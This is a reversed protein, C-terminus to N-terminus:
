SSNRDPRSVEDVRALANNRAQDLSKTETVIDAVICPAEPPFSGRTITDEDAQAPVLDVDADVDGANIRVLNNNCSLWRKVCYAM